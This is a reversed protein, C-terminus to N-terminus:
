GSEAKGSANKKSNYIMFFVGYDSKYGVRALDEASHGFKPLSLDEFNSAVEKFGVKKYVPRGAAFAFVFVDFGLEDAVDAVRQVLATAIGQHKNDPHVALYDIRTYVGKSCIENKIRSNNEDSHDDGPAWWASDSAEKLRAREEPTVDEVQAEQWIPKGDSTKCISEPLEIRIYGVLKGTEPDVAKLHRLTDREGILKMPNRKVQQEILFELSKDPPYNLRWSPDEWFASMNNRAIVAADALVVPEIKWATRSAM